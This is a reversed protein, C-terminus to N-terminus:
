VCYIIKTTMTALRVRKFVSYSDAFKDMVALRVEPEANQPPYPFEKGKGYYKSKELM